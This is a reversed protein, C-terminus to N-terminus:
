FYIIKPFTRNQTKHIPLEVRNEQIVARRNDLLYVIKIQYDSASILRSRQLCVCKNELM